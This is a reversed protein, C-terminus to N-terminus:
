LITSLWMWQVSMCCTTRLVTILWMWQISVYRMYHTTSYQTVNVTCVCMARVAFYQISDCKSYLCLCCTTRLITSLWLWQLCMYCTIRHITSLWMWQISVYLMHHLTNYHTVNVTSVYLMYHPTNYQTVNVTYVFVAYLASYQVSDCESYVCVCCTIRLITSLWMWQISVYLMYHPTNYQTVNVTYVCIAYLATYQVSDCESYVCVCVAHLAFYQVSDCESYPCMCCTIRLITSLWMWQISVYLMYHPTNYQTVKVTYVCVSPLASYQVSDYQLGLLGTCHCTM